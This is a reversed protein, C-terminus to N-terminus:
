FDFGYFETDRLSFELSVPQARPLKPANRWQVPHSVSDGRIPVCDAWDLGPLARGETDVVRVTMEGRVTANVTVADGPLDALPTTLLGPDTGADRSVFGNKRLIAMGLQRDGTKHGTSYGGYYIYDQDGVTICDAFWAM